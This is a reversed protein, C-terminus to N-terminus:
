APGSASAWRPPRSSSATATRSRNFDHCVSTLIQGAWGEVVEDYVGSMFYSPHVHLNSAWRRAVSARAWCCRRHPSREPRWSSSPLRSSSRGSETPPAARRGARRDRPRRRAAGRARRLRRLLRGGADSADQLFTKMTSQKCGVLCGANCEGCYRADDDRANRALTEHTLGAADFGRNLIQNVRNHVTNAPDANIRRM